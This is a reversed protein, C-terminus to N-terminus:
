KAQFSTDSKFRRLQNKLDDQEPALKLAEEILSQAMKTNGQKFHVEALTDLYEPNKPDLKRASTALKEAEKLDGLSANETQVLIYAANNFADSNKGDLRTVERFVDLAEHERNGKLELRGIKMWLDSSNPNHRLGNLLIEMARFKDGVLELAGSVRIYSAMNNPNAIIDKQGQKIENELFLDFTQVLLTKLVSDEGQRDATSLLLDIAKQHQKKQNLELVSKMLSEINVTEDSKLAKLKEGSIAIFGTFLPLLAMISLVTIISLKGINKTPREM